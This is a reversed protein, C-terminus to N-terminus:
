RLQRLSLLAPQGTNPLLSWGERQATRSGLFSLGHTASTQCCACGTDRAM